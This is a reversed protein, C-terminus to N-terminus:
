MQAIWCNQFLLCFSGSSPIWPEKFASLMNSEHLLRVEGTFLSDGYINMAYLNVFSESVEQEIRQVNVLFSNTNPLYSNLNNRTVNDSSTTNSSLPSRELKELGINSRLDNESSYPSLKAVKSQKPTSIAPSPIKLDSTSNRGLM